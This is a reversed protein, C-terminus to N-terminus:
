RSLDDAISSFAAAFLFASWAAIPLLAQLSWRRPARAAHAKAIALFCFGAAFCALGFGATHLLIELGVAIGDNLGGFLGLFLGIGILGCGFVFLIIAISRNITQMWEVRAVPNQLM